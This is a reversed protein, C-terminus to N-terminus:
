FFGTLVQFFTGVPAAERADEIARQVQGLIQGLRRGMEEDNILKALMGEGNNVKDVIERLGAVFARGDDLLKSDGLLAGILGKTPDKAATTIETVDDVIRRM